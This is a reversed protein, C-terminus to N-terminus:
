FGRLEDLFAEAKQPTEFTGLVRDAHDIFIAKIDYIQLWFPSDEGTVGVAYVEPYKSFIDLAKKKWLKLIDNPWPDSYRMDLIYDIHRPRLSDM